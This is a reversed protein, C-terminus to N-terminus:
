RSVRGSTAEVQCYRREDQDIAVPRRAFRHGRRGEDSGRDPTGRRKGSRTEAASHHGPRSSTMRKESRARVSPPAAPEQQECQRRGAPAGVLELQKRAREDERVPKGSM